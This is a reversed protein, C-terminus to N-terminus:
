DGSPNIAVIYLVAALIISPLLVVGNLSASLNVMFLLCALALLTEKM